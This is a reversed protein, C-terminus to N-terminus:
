EAAPGAALDGEIIERFTRGDDLLSFYRRELSIIGEAKALMALLRDPLIAIVGDNDGVVIDGPAVRMGAIDAIVDFTFRFSTGPPVDTVLRGAPVVGTGYVPWPIEHLEDTDRLPGSTIWGDYGSARAVRAGGSGISTFGPVDNQQVVVAHRRPLGRDYLDLAQATYGRDGPELSCRVTMAVGILSSWPVAPRLEPRAAAVTYGLMRAGDALDAVKVARLRALLDDTFQFAATEGM